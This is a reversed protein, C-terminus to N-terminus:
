CHTQWNSSKCMITSMASFTKDNSCSGNEFYDRFDKIESVFATVTFTLLESIMLVVHVCFDSFM